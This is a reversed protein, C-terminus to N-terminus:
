KVRRVPNRSVHFGHFNHWIFGKLRVERHLDSMGDFTKVFEKRIFDRWWRKMM